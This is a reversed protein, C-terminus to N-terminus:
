SEMASLMQAECFINEYSTTYLNTYVLQKSDLTISPPSLNYVFNAAADGSTNLFVDLLYMRMPPGGSRGYIRLTTFIACNM